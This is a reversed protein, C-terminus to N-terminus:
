VCVRPLHHEAKSKPLKYANLENLDIIAFTRLEITDGSVKSYPTVNMVEPVKPAVKETWQLRGEPGWITVDAGCAFYM